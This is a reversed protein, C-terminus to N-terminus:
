EERYAKFKRRVEYVVGIIRVPLTEIEYNSYFKPPFVAVNHGILTVGDFGRKIEKVTAEDGNVMVVAIDGTDCTQEWKCIIVDGEQITPEMSQGSIVLGFFQGKRALSEPIEEYDIINEIAEIPVGAAVTGLVPIKVGKKRSPASTLSGSFFRPDIDSKDVGLADAIKQVQGANPTSREAFYGSITSAPIGTMESLQGQTIASSYKKLNAAITARLKKDFDSIKNRPM